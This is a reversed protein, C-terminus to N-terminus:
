IQVGKDVGEKFFIGESQLVVCALLYEMSSTNVGM